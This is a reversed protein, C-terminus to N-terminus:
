LYGYPFGMQVWAWTALVATMMREGEIETKIQKKAYELTVKFCGLWHYASNM